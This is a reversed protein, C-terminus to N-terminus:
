IRYVTLVEHEPSTGHPPIPPFEDVKHGKVMGFLHQTNLAAFLAPEPEKSLRRGKSLRGFKLGCIPDAPHRGPRPCSSRFPPNASLSAQFRSMQKDNVKSQEQVGPIALLKNGFRGTTEVPRL